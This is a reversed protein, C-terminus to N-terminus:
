TWITAQRGKFSEQAMSCSVAGYYSRRILLLVVCSHAQDEGLEGVEPFDSRHAYLAGRQTANSHATIKFVEGNKRQSGSKNFIEQIAINKMKRAFDCKRELDSKLPYHIQYIRAFSSSVKQAKQQLKLSFWPSTSYLSELLLQLFQLMLCQDGKYIRLKTCLNILSCCESGESTPSFERGAGNAGSLPM